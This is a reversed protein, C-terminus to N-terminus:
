DQAPSVAPSAQGGGDGPHKLVRFGHLGLTALSFIVNPRSQRRQGHLDWVLVKMGYSDRELTSGAPAAVIGDFGTEAPYSGVGEVELSKRANHPEFSLHIIGSPEGRYRLGYIPVDVKGLPYFYMEEFHGSNLFPRTWRSPSSGPFRRQFAAAEAAVRHDLGVLQIDTSAIWSNEMSDTVNFVQQYAAKLGQEDVTPSVLYFTWWDHDAPKAWCAAALPFRAEGLADLLRQGDDIQNDVLTVTDM